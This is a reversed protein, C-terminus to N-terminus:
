AATAGEGHAQPGHLVQALRRKAEAACVAAAGEHLASARPTEPPNSNHIQQKSHPGPLAVPVSWFIRLLMGRCQASPFRVEAPPTLVRERLSFANCTGTQM